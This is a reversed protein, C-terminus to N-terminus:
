SWWVLDHPVTLEKGGKREESPSFVRQQRNHNDAPERTVGEWPGDRGGAMLPGRAMLDSPGGRAVPPTEGGRTAPRCTRKNMVPWAFSPPVYLRARVVVAHPISAVAVAVEEADHRRGTPSTVLGRGLRFPVGGM